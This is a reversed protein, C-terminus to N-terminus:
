GCCVAILLWRGVTVAITLWLSSSGTTLLRGITIFWGTTRLWRLRLLSHRRFLRFSTFWLCLILSFLWILLFISFQRMRVIIWIRPSFTFVSSTLWTTAMVHLFLGIFSSLLIMFPVM